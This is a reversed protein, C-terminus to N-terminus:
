KNIRKVFDKQDGKLKYYNMNFRIAIVSIIIFGLIYLIM